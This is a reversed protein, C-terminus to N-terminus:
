RKLQHGFMAYAALMQPLQDTSTASFRSKTRVVEALAPPLGSLLSPDLDAAFLDPPDQGTCLAWLM